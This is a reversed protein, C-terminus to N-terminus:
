PQKVEEEEEEEQMAQAEIIKRQLQKKNYKKIRREIKQSQTYDPHDFINYSYLTRIRGQM